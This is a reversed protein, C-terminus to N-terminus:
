LRAGADDGVPSRIVLAEVPPEEGGAIAVCWACFDYTGSVFPNSDGTEGVNGTERVDLGPAIFPDSSMRESRRRKIRM